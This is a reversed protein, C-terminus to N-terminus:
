QRNLLEKDKQENVLTDEKKFVAFVTLFMLSIDYLISFKLIYELNYKMKEPLIESIYTYDTDKSQQLLRDEDKYRISALSTVGAPMLLTAYMENSYEDVYKQVEPRTGVFSMDGKLINILQLLEDLRYKRLVKGVKTIRTDNDVTVQSGKESGTFMTRFKYIWFKEGYTTVREQKFVVPGQSDVKIIISIVLIIPTCLLLLILSMVIDLIRKAILSFNKKALINYYELVEDCIFEKPLDEYKKLVM